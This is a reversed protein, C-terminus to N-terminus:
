SNRICSSISETRLSNSMGGIECEHEQNNHVKKALRKACIDDMQGHGRTAHMISLERPLM